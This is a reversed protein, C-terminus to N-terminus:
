IDNYFLHRGFRFCPKRGRAWAPDVYDAHYHTAGSTFDPLGGAVATRAIGLAQAFSPDAVTVRLLAARSSTNENWCSFQYPKRCVTVVDRGWWGGQRARNLVVCAVAQMGREGEGRAEAWLTRALTDVAAEDTPQASADTGAEAQPDRRRMARALTPGPQVAMPAGRSAQTLAAIRFHALIPEVPTYLADGGADSDRFACHIGVLAEQGNVVPAGSDGPETRSALRSSQLADIRLAVDTESGDALVQRVQVVVHAEHHVAHGAVPDAAALLVRLPAGEPPPPALDVPVLSPVAAALAHWDQPRMRVLGADVPYPGAYAAIPTATEALFAREIRLGAVPAEVAVPDDFASDVHAGLVHGATVLYCHSPRAADNALFGATGRMRLTGAPGQAQVVAGQLRPRPVHRAVLEVRGHPTEISPPVIHTPWRRHVHVIVRPRGAADELALGDVTEPRLWEFRSRGARHERLPTGLAHM